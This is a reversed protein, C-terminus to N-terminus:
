QAEIEAKLLEGIDSILNVINARAKEVQEAKSPDKAITALSGANNSFQEYVKRSRIFTSFAPLNNQRILQVADKFAITNVDIGDVRTLVLRLPARKLNAQAWEFLKVTENMEMVNAKSPVITVDSAVIAAILMKNMSGQVDVLVIEATSAQLLAKLEEPTSARNVSIEDLLTGANRCREAWQSCSQQEDADIILVTTGAHALESAILLCLTSKGAGGTSNAFSIITMPPQKRNHVYIHEYYFAQRM